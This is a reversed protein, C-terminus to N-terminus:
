SIITVSIKWLYLILLGLTNKFHHEQCNQLIWLFAEIDSDKILFTAPLQSILFLSWCLQKRIFQTFHKSSGRCTATSLSEVWFLVIRQKTFFGVQESFSLFLYFSSYKGAKTSSHWRIHEFLDLKGVGKTKVHGTKVLWM